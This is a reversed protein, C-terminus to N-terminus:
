EITPSVNAQTLAEEKVGMASYVRTKVFWKVEPSYWYEARLGGGSREYSEIKITDFDGASVHITENGAAVKVHRYLTSSNAAANWVTFRMRTEKDPELPWFVFPYIIDAELAIKGNKRTAVFGLGNKTYLSEGDETKVVFVDIGRFKEDRGVEKTVVRKRGHNTEAYTWRDGVKWEPRPVKFSTKKPAAESLSKKLVADFAEATMGFAGQFSGHLLFERLGAFGKRQNLWDITLFALDYTRVRGADQNLTRRWQANNFIYPIEPLWAWQRLVERRAEHVSTEYDQWGLSDLVKAAVWDAFGEWVFTPPGHEGAIEYHIVHGYEHALLLISSAQGRDIKGLDILIQQQKAAAVQNGIDIPFLGHGYRFFAYSTSNHFLDVKLPDVVPLHLDDRCVKIIAALAQEVTRVDTPDSPRFDSAKTVIVEQPRVPIGCQM